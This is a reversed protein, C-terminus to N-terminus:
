QLLNACGSMSLPRLPFVIKMNCPQWSNIKFCSEYWPWPCCHTARSPWPSPQRRASPIHCLHFKYLYFFDIKTKRWFKKFDIQPLFKLSNKTDFKFILLKKLFYWFLNKLTDDLLAFWSSFDDVQSLWYVAM